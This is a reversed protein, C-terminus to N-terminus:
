LRPNGPAPRTLDVSTASRPPPEAFADLRDLVENENIDTANAERVPESPPSTPIKGQSVLDREAELWIEVDQGKPRGRARWIERARETIATHYAEASVHPEHTTNM